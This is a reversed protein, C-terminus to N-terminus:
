RDASFGDILMLTDTAPHSSLNRPPGGDASMVFVEAQEGPLRSDFAIWKGDPSFRPSGAVAARRPRTRV